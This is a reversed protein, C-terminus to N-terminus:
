RDRESRAQLVARRVAARGHGRPLERSVIVQTAIDRPVDGQKLLRGLRKTPSNAITTRAARARSEPSSASSMNKRERIIKQRIETQKVDKM